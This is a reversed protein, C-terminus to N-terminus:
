GRSRHFFNRRQQATLLNKDVSVLESSHVRDGTASSSSCNLSGGASRFYHSLVNSRDSIQVQGRKLPAQLIFAHNLAQDPKIRREPDYELMRLILNLFQLYDGTGHGEENRRRGRPGGSDIGLIHYLKRAGPPLYQIDRRSESCGSTDRDRLVYYSAGNLSNRVKMFFRSTKTGRDLLSAPPMGLTEVIRNVQDFEDGGNFLPNGTHLEVLICGLSWMDIAHDYPAGILVEFSRYFRSQIYQYIRRNSLCSSGFDILKIASRNSKCLLINEPKLDCHIINMEPEALFKLAGLLQHAFKRTLKLTIGQYHTNKILEYLNYSMVDFVLCLHNRWVLHTKLTIITNIGVHDKFKSDEQSIKILRLLALECKAQKFFAERNKVVKIAVETKGITDYARVVQGFSGKGIMFQIVYQSGINDGRRIIYDDNEDDFGGNYIPKGINSRSHERMFEHEGAPDHTAVSWLQDDDVTDNSSQQHSSHNESMTSYDSDVTRMTLQSSYKRDEFKDFGARTRNDFGYTLKDREYTGLLEVSLQSVPKDALRDSKHEDLDDPHNEVQAPPQESTLSNSFAASSM